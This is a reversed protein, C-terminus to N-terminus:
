ETTNHANSILVACGDHTHDGDRVWAICNSEQFYDRQLGYAFKKRVEILLKLGTAVQEEYCEENPYLDGYFVCRTLVNPMKCPFNRGVVYPHGQSRLLIVAYAQLKFDSGIQFSM